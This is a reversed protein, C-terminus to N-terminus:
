KAEKLTKILPRQIMKKSASPHQRIDTLPLLHTPRPSSSVGVGRNEEGATGLLVFCTYHCFRFLWTFIYGYMQLLFLSIAWTENAPFRDPTAILWWSGATTTQGDTWFAADGRNNSCVSYCCFSTIRCASLGGGVCVCEETRESRLLLSLKVPM